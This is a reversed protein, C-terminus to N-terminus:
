LVEKLAEVKDKNEPNIKIARQTKSMKCIKSTIEIYCYDDIVIVEIDFNEKIIDFAKEKKSKTTLTQKITEYCNYFDDSEISAYEKDIRELCKMAESPKAEKIAKLELLSQKIVNFREEDYKTLNVGDNHTWKLEEELEKLAKEIENM